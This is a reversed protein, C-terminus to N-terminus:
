NGFFTSAVGGVVADLLDVAPLPEVVQLGVLGTDAGDPPATAPADPPGASPAPNSQSREGGGKWNHPNGALDGAADFPGSFVTTIPAATPEPTLEPSPTPTVDPPATPNGPPSPTPSPTHTPTPNPHPTATPRPTPTATPRPTATATPKPTPTPKPTASPKPTPTPTPKPTPTPSGCSTVFVATFVKAPYSSLDGDGYAGGKGYWRGDGKFAGIGIRTWNGLMVDRHTSSNAWGDFAGQTSSPLRSTATDGYDNWAINEGAGSYCYRAADLLQFADPTTGADPGDHSFYNKDYMDKSRTRAVSHVTSLDVVLPPKGNAARFQNILTALTNEDPGSFSYNTWAFVPAPLAVILVLAAVTALSAASARSGFLRWISRRHPM